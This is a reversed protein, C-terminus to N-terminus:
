KITPSGRQFARRNGYAVMVALVSLSIPPLLTNVYRYQESTFWMIWAAVALIGTIAIYARARQVPIDDNM